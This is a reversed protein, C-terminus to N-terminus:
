YAYLSHDKTFFLVAYVIGFFLAMHGALPVTSGNKKPNLFIHIALAFLLSFVFLIFFSIPAFAFSIAIFFLVDGLGISVNILKKKFRFKSYVAAFLLLVSIFVLNSLSNFLVTYFSNQILQIGLVLLGVMPYLFWYVSRDKYDQITILTLTIWNLILLLLLMM